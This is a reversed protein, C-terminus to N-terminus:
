QHGHGPFIIMMMESALKIVKTINEDNNDDYMYEDMMIVLDVIM